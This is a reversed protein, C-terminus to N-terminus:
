GWLGDPYLGQATKEKLAAVILPKDAAYTVGYWKDATSLVKVNAKGEKLLEGVTMPLLFEKKMPNEPLENDLFAPFRNELEQLFVPTFGFMNMSVPTEPNLDASNKYEEYDPLEEPNCFKLYEVAFAAHESSIDITHTGKTLRFLLPQSLLGDPDSIFSKQWMSHQIQAPRIENGRSDSTIETENMWVRSLTIRSASDFPLEGDIELSFEIKGSNSVLPAYSLELAYLGTEPVKVTYSIDGEGSECILVNERNEGDAVYSGTSFSGNEATTYDIGSLIIECDPRIEEAYSDLYQSYTPINSNVPAFTYNEKNATVFNASATNKAMFAPMSAAFVCSFFAANIRSKMVKFNM